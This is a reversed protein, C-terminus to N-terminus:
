FVVPSATATNRKVEFDIFSIEARPPWFAPKPVGGEGLITIGNEDQEYVPRGYDDLRPRSKSMRTVLTAHAGELNECVRKVTANIKQPSLLDARERADAPWLGAASFYKPINFHIFTKGNKNITFVTRDILAKGADEDDGDIMWDTVLMPRDRKSATMEAKTIFASHKGPKPPEFNGGGTSVELSSLDTAFNFGIAM